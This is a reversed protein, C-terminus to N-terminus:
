RFCQSFKRYLTALFRRPDPSNILPLLRTFDPALFLDFCKDGEEARPGITHNLILEVEGNGGIFDTWFAADSIIPRVSLKGPM